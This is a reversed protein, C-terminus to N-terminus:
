ISFKETILQNNELKNLLKEVQIAFSCNGLYVVFKEFKSLPLASM